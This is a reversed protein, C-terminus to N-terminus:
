ATDKHVALGASAQCTPMVELRNVNMHEPQEIVWRISRAIDDPQLPECHDYIQSASQEDGHYRVQSFETGEVLGPILNTVRVKTGLLDARLSMSFHDVFAKSAGYVNGGKYAHLGATSGVNIIQGRNREIMQPVLLHTMSALGACNTSIMTQWDEWRSNQTPEVGLALGANNILVDIHKFSGPLNQLATTLTERETIDAQIIHPKANLSDALEALKDKRRALLVLQYGASDLEIATARGFGSSAGTILVTKTM